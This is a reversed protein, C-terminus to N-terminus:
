EYRALIEDVREPTLNEHYDHDIQMMPAGACACLCESEKLTFRGDETTEGFDVGLTKKLHGAIRDCGRLMCSVNTCLFIRHRGVPAQEYMGYFSAVEAARIAPVELLQAVHELLESSLYGHEDQALRLAAMLASQQRGKPYKGTERRIEALTAPSLM